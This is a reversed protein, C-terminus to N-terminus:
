HSSNLRTSKRDSFLYTQGPTVIFERLFPIALWRPFGPPGCDSIPDYEIGKASQERRRKLEALPGPKLKASTLEERKQTPDFFPAGVRQWLGTWDPMTSPTLPSGGSARKKLAAYLELATANQKGLAVKAEREAPVLDGAGQAGVRPATAILTAAVAVAMGWSARM